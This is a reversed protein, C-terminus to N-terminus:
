WCDFNIDEAPPTGVVVPDLTPEQTLIESCDLVTDDSESMEGGEGELRKLAARKPVLDDTTDGSDSDDLIEIVPLGFKQIVLTKIKRGKKDIIEEVYEMINTPAGSGPSVVDPLTIPGAEVAKRIQMKIERPIEVPYQEKLAEEFKEPKELKESFFAKQMKGLFRLREDWASRPMVKDMREYNLLYRHITPLCGNRRYQMAVVGFVRQKSSPAEYMPWSQFVVQDVLLRCLIKNSMLTGPFYCTTFVRSFSESPLGCVERMQDVTPNIQEKLFVTGAWPLGKIREKRECWIDILSQILEQLTSYRRFCFIVDLYSYLELYDLGLCLPTDMQVHKTFFDIRRIAENWVTYVRFMMDEVFRQMHHQLFIQPVLFQRLISRRLIPFRWEIKPPVYEDALSTRFQKHDLFDPIKQGKKGHCIRAVGDVFITWPCWVRLKGEGESFCQSQVFLFYGELTDRHTRLICFLAMLDDDKGYFELVLLLLFPLSFFAVFWHVAMERKARGIFPMHRSFHEEPMGLSQEEGEEDNKEVESDEDVDSSDWDEYKCVSHNM